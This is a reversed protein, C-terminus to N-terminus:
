FLYVVESVAMLNEALYLTKKFTFPKVGFTRTTQAVVIGAARLCEASFEHCYYKNPDNFLFDYQTNGALLTKARVIELPINGVSNNMYCEKYHPRLIVFSDTDKVFNIPHIITVGEAVAHVVTDKDVVLGSHTFQGPIFISDLYYNYMRCIIDGPQISDMMQLIQLAGTKPPTTALM